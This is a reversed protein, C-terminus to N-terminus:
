GPQSFNKCHEAPIKSVLGRPDPTFIDGTVHHFSDVCLPMPATVSASYDGAGDNMQIVM